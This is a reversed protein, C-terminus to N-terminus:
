YGLQIYVGGGRAGPQITWSSQPDGHSRFVWSM